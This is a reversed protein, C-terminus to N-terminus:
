SVSCCCPLGPFREAIGVPFDPSIGPSGQRPGRHSGLFWISNSSFYEVVAWSRHGDIEM